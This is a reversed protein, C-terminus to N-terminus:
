LEPALLLSRAAPLSCCPAPQSRTPGCVASGSLSLMARTRCCPTDLRQTCLPQLRRVNPDKAGLPLMEEFLFSKEHGVNIAVWRLVDCLNFAACYALATGGLHSMPPDSFFKGKCTQQLLGVDSHKSRMTLSDADYARAISLARLIWDQRHNVAAIHFPGEGEFLCLLGGNNIHTEHLLEPLLQCLELSLKLAEPTNALLLNHLVGAGTFDATPPKLKSPSDRALSLLIRRATRTLDGEGTEILRQLAGSRQANLNKMKVMSKERKLSRKGPAQSSGTNEGSQRRNRRPSGSNEDNDVLEVEPFRTLNCRADKGSNQDKFCLMMQEKLDFYADGGIEIKM